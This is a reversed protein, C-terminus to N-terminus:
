SPRRRDTIGDVLVSRLSPGAAAHALSRRTPTTSRGSTPGTAWESVAEASIIWRSGRKVARLERRAIACRITKPSVRLESALSAVTYATCSSGLTAEISGNLHPALRCALAAVTHDDLSAVLISALAASAGANTAIVSDAHSGGVTAHTGEVLRPRFGPNPPVLEAKAYAQM